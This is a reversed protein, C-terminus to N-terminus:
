LRPALLVGRRHHGRERAAASEQHGFAHAHRTRDDALRPTRTSWLLLRLGLRLALRDLLTTRQDRSPLRLTDPLSSLSDQHSRQPALLTHM